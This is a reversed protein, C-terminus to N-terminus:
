TKSCEGIRAEGSVTIICAQPLMWPASFFKEQSKRAQVVAAMVTFVQYVCQSMSVITWIQFLKKFNDAMDQNIDVQLKNRFIWSLIVKPLRKSCFLYCVMVLVMPSETQKHMDDRHHTLKVYHWTIHNCWSKFKISAEFMYGISRWTNQNYM